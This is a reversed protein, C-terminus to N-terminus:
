RSYVGDCDLGLFSGGGSITLSATLEISDGFPRYTERANLFVIDDETIIHGGKVVLVGDATVAVDLAVLEGSVLSLM